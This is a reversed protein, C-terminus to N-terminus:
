IDVHKFRNGTMEIIESTYNPNAVYIIAGDSYERKFQDPSIVELGTVPVYRNQKAPNIDVVCDIKYGHRMMLMAFIVGKSSGGWVAHRQGFSDAPPIQFVPARVASPARNSAAGVSRISALDAVVYIYQDGFIHGASVVRGFINDFDRLTFYNVHEYYIDFWANNRCIWDFCPVEIYILGAHNNASAIEALFEHPRPIHELVHRLVIGKASLSEAPNFFTAKISPNSGTYAPDFGTIQFGDAQLKELFYGKGCGVEVLNSTGLNRRVLNQVALLHAQFSRSLSQENNYDPGYVVLSADFASNHVLGDRGRVLSINGTLCNKASGTDAFTQNQFVPYGQGKFIFNESELIV